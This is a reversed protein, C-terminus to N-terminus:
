IPSAPLTHVPSFAPIEVLKKRLRPIDREITNFADIVEGRTVYTRPGQEEPIHGDRVKKSVKYFYKATQEKGSTDTYTINIIFNDLTRSIQYEQVNKIDSEKRSLSDSLETGTVNDQLLSYEGTYGKKWYVAYRHKTEDDEVWRIFINGTFDVKGSIFEPLVAEEKEPVTKETSVSEKVPEVRYYIKKTTTIGSPEKYTVNVIFDEDTRSIQYQVIDRGIKYSALSKSDIFTTKSSSVTGAENYTGGLSEKKMIRYTGVNSFPTVFKVTINSEVDVTGAVRNPHVADPIEQKEAEADEFLGKEEKIMPIDEKKEENGFGPLEFLDETGTPSLFGRTVAWSVKDPYDNGSLGEKKELISFLFEAFIDRNVIDDERLTSLDYYGKQAFGKILLGYTDALPTGFPIDVTSLKKNAYNVMFGCTAAEARFQDDFMKDEVGDTEIFELDEFSVEEFTLQGGDDKKEESEKTDEKPASDSTTDEFLSDFYDTGEDEQSRVPVASAAWLICIVSIVTIRYKM